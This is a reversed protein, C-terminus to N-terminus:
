SEFKAHAFVGEWVSTQCDHKAKSVLYEYSSTYPVIVILNIPSISQSSYHDSLGNTGYHKLM